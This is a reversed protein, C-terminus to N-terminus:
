HLQTLGFAGSGAHTPAVIDDGEAPRDSLAEQAAALSADLCYALFHANLLLAEDRAYGILRALAAARERQDADTRPEATNGAPRKSM